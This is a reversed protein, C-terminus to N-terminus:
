AAGRHTISPLEKLLEPHSLCLRILRDMAVSQAVEGREYKSFANRGGGFLQAAEEQSLGLTHRAHRIAQPPLLGDAERKATLGATDNVRIQEPAVFERGCGGCQSWAMPVRLVQEKYRVPEIDEFARIDSSGCVSCVKMM